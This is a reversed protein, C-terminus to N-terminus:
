GSWFFTLGGRKNTTTFEFGFVPYFDLIPRVLSTYLKKLCLENNYEKTNRTESVFVKIHKLAFTKLIPVFYYIPKSYWVWIM